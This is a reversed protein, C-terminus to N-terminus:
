NARRRLRLTAAGLAGALIMWAAPEPTATLTTGIAYFEANDTFGGTGSVVAPAPANGWGAGTYYTPTTGTASGFTALQESPTGTGSNTGNGVTLGMASYGSNTDYSFAYLTNPALTVPTSFTYTVWTGSSGPTTGVTASGSYLISSNTNVTGTTPQFVNMSITNGTAFGAGQEYQDWVSISDLAYGGSNSGTTFTQGIWNNNYYNLTNGQSSYGGSNLPNSALIIQNGTPAPTTSISPVVTDAMAIGAGALMVAACAAALLGCKQNRVTSM